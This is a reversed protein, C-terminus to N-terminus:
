RQAALQRFSFYADAGHVLGVVGSMLYAATMAPYVDFGPTIVYMPWLFIKTAFALYTTSSLYMFCSLGNFLMEFLSGRVLRYSKESVIYCVLLVSSTLFCASSTTLAGEFATGITASYRLGYNILLSQILGSIVTELVKLIGPWTRLFQLHICTCCRVFCCEFGGSNTRSTPEVVRIIPGNGHGSSGTGIKM